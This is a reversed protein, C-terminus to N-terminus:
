KKDEIECEQRIQELIEKKMEEVKKLSIMCTSSACTRCQEPLEVNDPTKTKRNLITVLLFLIVLGVIILGQIVISALFM